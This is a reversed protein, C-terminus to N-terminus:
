DHDGHRRGYGDAAVSLLTWVESDPTQSFDRYWQGIAFFNGPVEVAVLEDAVASLHALSAAPAVPTAIVVRAAGRARVVACAAATTSGTAIGDDVVVVCRGGLPAARRGRRAAEAARESLVRRERVAVAELERRTVRAARQVADNLVLVGDEGVAGVALEPQDPVGLKRVLIVDLPADLARAVEAAVPVGGRPLGLVLPDDARLHGLRAALRCGAEARDAFGGGDHRPLHAGGDM